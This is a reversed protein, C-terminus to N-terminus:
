WPGILGLAWCLWAVPAALLVSDLVDLVGGFGPMWRSSDKCGVDRKLLSEALDGIMGATGVLLGYAIASWPMSGPPLKTETIPFLWQFTAWAGFCAFLLEGVIGEVTKGPSLLPAMKHRGFLRGVAYAGTDGMKVVIILSALVGLGWYMRLQVLFVLMLGVYVLTFVGACVNGTARGPERYRIMESVFVASVGVALAAMPWALARADLPASANLPGWVLPIWGGCVLLINGAHIVGPLPALGAAKALSLVEDTALLTLLLCLPFLVTGRVPPLHDLWMLGALVGIM